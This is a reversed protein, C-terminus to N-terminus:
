NENNKKEKYHTRLRELDDAGFYLRRGLRTKPGSIQGRRIDRYMQFVDVGLQAAMESVNFLQLVNRRENASVIM